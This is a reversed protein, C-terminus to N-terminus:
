FNYSIGFNWTRGFGFYVANADAIGNWTRGNSEYTGLAPNTSSVNDSTFINTRSEAIYIKDLVNNMNFRFNVSDSKDKGVPMKFSFGADMLGYAPLQLTGKNTTTTFAASPSIAAYLKDVMRYNADFKLNKVVEYTAGISATMQAADGVKVGDLYLTKPSSGAFPNGAADYVNSVSEGKYQWNAVSLMGNIILKDIPKANIELEVGTHVEGVGTFDFYGGVNTTNSDSIRFYRDNWKTYYANFTANIKSSRYGYGFELSKVKENTLNTNLVSANNPYVTGFNPQKSYVGGNIFINMKSNLNYNVGGKANYGLINEFDTKSLPNSDLYKFHDVRQFGQQSLSGQVFASLNNKSYELQTFVGYWRVNGDNNFSIKEQNTVNAFPNLSPSSDYTTSLVTNPSNVNSSADKFNTAGLLDSINTYHYGSYTRADLGLDLTLENTLKKNLNIVAGYWDHSNVSNIRSIGTSLDTASGSSFTNQYVGGTQTRTGQSTSQGSNWAQILDYDVLGASTRALTSYNKGKIGGTGNSGGGRGWSGYFVTSLKTKDNFKYDWNFSAIPKHYYNRRMNYEEGNLYGWDPNYKVNPVDLGNGYKIADAITVNGFRNHHWQPAGTFTFQIDSKPSFEYGLAIFYNGAYGKTGDVYGAGYTQGLLVSASLGNKMKGTSYSVQNKIYSDNGVVSSIKGGEKMDSTRTIFNITGGVSSIALKSSGLGRQVQLASTVDGLGAWNSFYVKSNEMDNVPVGNVLVAINEQSFGRINIRSDGFGGGSKSTYVSPTNALLEPVEQNGLKQQIEAARITSVAVPTKRDKAIDILNGKVVVDELQNSNSVLKISGLDVTEGKNVKFNVTQSQFGVYSIVVQGSNTTTNLLFKGDMDSTAGNASGKVIVNVGPLAGNLENDLVTGKIKGQSFMTTAMLLFMISFLNITTKKM